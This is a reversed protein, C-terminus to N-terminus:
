AAPSPSPHFTLALGNICHRLGTPQPGDTFLHGFHGGCRRCHIETRLMFYTRDEETGIANDLAQWFSPWGTGSDYKHESSYVPLDCGACHFLGVRHEYLLESTGPPETAHRRLVDFQEDTLLRRWEEVTKTVEFDGEAALGPRGRLLAASAAVIAVTSLGTLFQRKSFMGGRIIM